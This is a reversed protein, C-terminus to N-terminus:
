LLARETYAVISVSDSLTGLSFNCDNRHALYFYNVPVTISRIQFMQPL